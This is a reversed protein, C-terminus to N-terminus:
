GGLYVKGIINRSKIEEIDGDMAVTGNQLAYVRTAVGM